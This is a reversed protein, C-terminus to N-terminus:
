QIMRHRLKGMQWIHSIINRERFDSVLRMRRPRDGKEEVSAWGWWGVPGLLVSVNIMDGPSLLGAMNTRSRM